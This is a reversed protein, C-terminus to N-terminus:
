CNSYSNIVPTGTGASPPRVARGFHYCSGCRWDVHSPLTKAPLLSNALHGVQKGQWCCACLAFFLCFVVFFLFLACFVFCLWPSPSFTIHFLHSFALMTLRKALSFPLSAHLWQRVFPCASLWVSLRVAMRVNLHLFGRLFRLSCPVVGPLGCMEIIILQLMSCAVHGCAVQLVGCLLLVCVSVSLWYSPPGAIILVQGFQCKKGGKCGPPCVHLHPRWGTPWQM